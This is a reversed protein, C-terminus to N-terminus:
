SRLIGNKRVLYSLRLFQRGHHNCSVEAEFETPIAVVQNTSLHDISPSSWTMLRMPDEGGILRMALVFRGCAADDLCAPTLM